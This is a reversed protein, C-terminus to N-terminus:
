YERPPTWERRDYERAVRVRAGLQSRVYELTGSVDMYGGTEFFLRVIHARNDDMQTFGCITDLRAVRDPTNPKIVNSATPAKFTIWYRSPWLLELLRRRLPRAQERIRIEQRLKELESLVRAKERDADQVAWQSARHLDKLEKRTVLLDRVIRPWEEDPMSLGQVGLMRTLEEDPIAPVDKRELKPLTAESPM